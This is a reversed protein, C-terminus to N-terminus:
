PDASHSERGRGSHRGSSRGRGRGRGRGGRGRGRGRGRGPRRSDPRERNVKNDGEEPDEGDIGSLLDRPLAYDSDVHDDVGRSPSSAEARNYDSKAFPARPYSFNAVGSEDSPKFDGSFPSWSSMIPGVAVNTSHQSPSKPPSRSWAPDNNDIDLLNTSLVNELNSTNNNLSNPSSAPNTASTPALHVKMSTPPGASWASKSPGQAPTTDDKTAVPTTSTKFEAKEIAVENTDQTFHGDSKAEFKTNRQKRQTREKKALHAVNILTGDELRKFLVGRTRPKRTRRHKIRAAREAAMKAFFEEKSQAIEENKLM